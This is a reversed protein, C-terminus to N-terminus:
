FGEFGVGMSSATSGAYGETSPYTGANSSSNSFYASDNESLGECAGELLDSGGGLQGAMMDGIIDRHTIACMDQYSPDNHLQGIIDTIRPFSATPPGTYTDTTTTAPTSHTLAPSEYPLLTASIPSSPTSKNNNNNNPPYLNATVPTSHDLGFQFTRVMSAEVFQIIEVVKQNAKNQFEEFMQHVYVEMHSRVVRPLQQRIFDFQQLMHEQRTAASDSVSDDNEYYPSPVKEGPFIVRYMDRWKDEESSHAKARAHLQKEQEEGISEWTKARLGCPTDARQHAQLSESKEFRSFCRPCVNKLSHARYVHEKVRHADEWGPGCCTKVHRHKAPDHKAFPCAFRSRDDPSEKPNVKKKKAKGSRTTGSRKAGATTAGADAAVTAHVSSSISSELCRDLSLEFYAMSRDVIEKEKRRLFDSCSFSKGEHQQQQKPPPPTKKPGTTISATTTTTVTSAASHPLHSPPPTTDASRSAM